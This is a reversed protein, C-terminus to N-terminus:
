EAQGGQGGIDEQFEDMRALIYNAALDENKDCAFYAEIILQEPFGLAKLRQIAARDTESVNITVVGGPPAAQGGGPAPNAAPTAAVAPPAAGGRAFQREEQNNRIASMLEPNSDAIQQVIQQLLAPDARVLDRLQQFQPSNQLFTLGQGAESDENDSDDGAAPNVVVQDQINVIDPIGNKEQIDMAQIAEVTQM